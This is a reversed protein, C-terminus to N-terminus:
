AKVIEMLRVGADPSTIRIYSEIDNLHRYLLDESVGPLSYVTFLVQRTDAKVCTRLDPGRLISSIVGDADSILMDGEVTILENRNIGIYVEKGTSLKLQLPLRISGLDHGATLLLNKMEAMFMSEVISLTSPISKNKYVISQLQLLVHYSYGFKKYYASYVDIPHFSKLKNGDMSGFKERLSTEVEGKAANLKEHCPLNLVNDMALIGLSMGPFASASKKSIEIVKIEEM